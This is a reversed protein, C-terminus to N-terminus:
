IQQAIKWAVKVFAKVIPQNEVLIEIAQASSLSYGEL